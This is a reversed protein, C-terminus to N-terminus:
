FDIGVGAATRSDIEMLPLGTLNIRRWEGRLLVVGLKLKAGVAFTRVWGTDSRERRSQRFFGLGPGGYPTLRGVKVALFASGTFTTMKEDSFEGPNRAAEAELNLLRFWTSSLAAGYATGWNEGPAPRAAFITGDGARAPLAAAGLLAALLAGRPSM